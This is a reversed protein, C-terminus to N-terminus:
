AWSYMKISRISGSISPSGFDLVPREGFASLPTSFSVPTSCHWQWNIVLYALLPKPYDLSPLPSPLGPHLLKMALKTVPHVPLPWWYDISPVPLNKTLPSTFMSVFDYAHPYLALHMHICRLMWISVHSHICTSIHSIYIQNSIRGPACPRVVMYM